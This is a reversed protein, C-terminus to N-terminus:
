LLPQDRSDEKEEVRHVIIELRSVKGEHVGEFRVRKVITAPGGGRVPGPAQPHGLLGMSVALLAAVGALWASGRASRQDRPRRQAGARVRRLVEAAEEPPLESRGRRAAILLERLGGDVDLGDEEIWVDLVPDKGSKERM